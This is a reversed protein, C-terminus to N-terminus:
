RELHVGSGDVSLYARDVVRHYNNDFVVIQIGPRPFAYDVGDILIQPNAGAAVACSAQGLGGDVGIKVSESPAGSADFYLLNEGSWICACSPSADDIVWAMFEWVDHFDDGPRANEISTDASKLAIVTFGEDQIQEFWAAFNEESPLREGLSKIERQRAVASATAARMQAQLEAYAAYDADWSAYAADGRHDPLDFRDDIYDMLYATYKETGNFNVHNKDRFDFEYDLGIEDCRENFNIFEYGRSRIIDGCTNFLAWESEPIVYPNVTFLIRVGADDCYNLLDDLVKAQLESLEGRADTPTPRDFPFSTPVVNYFGKTPNRYTLRRPLPWEPSRTLASYNTHYQIIDIYFSLPDPTTWNRNSLYATIARLRIPSLIPFSDAWNHLYTENLADDIMALTRLDCLFLADPHSAHATEISYRLLDAPQGPTSFDYSTYGREKWAVLPQYSFHVPSAGVYILDLNEEQQFGIICEKASYYNGRLTWTLEVFLAAAIAAFAAFQIFHILRSRKRM